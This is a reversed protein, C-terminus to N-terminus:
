TIKLCATLQLIKSCESAEPDKSGTAAPPTSSKDTTQLQRIEDSSLHTEAFTDSVFEHEVPSQPAEDRDAPVTATSSVPVAVSAVEICYAGGCLYIKINKGLLKSVFSYVQIVLKNCTSACVELVFTRM